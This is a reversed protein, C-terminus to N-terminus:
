GETISRVIDPIPVPRGSDRDVFVHVWTGFASISEAPGFLGLEYVLSSRGVRAVRLAVSLPEPFRLQNFFRCSSEAVVAREQTAMPDRGTSEELWANIATDFLQYYVANNLHGFMDNDSWRSTLHRVVSFDARTLTRPDFDDTM